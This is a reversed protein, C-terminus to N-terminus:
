KSIPLNAAQWAKFGGEIHAINNYGMGELTRVALASRGGTACYLILRKDKKFQPKHYPLTPDAYFEIMGRPANIAGPIYGQRYEEAERVDILVVDTSALNESAKEPTLNEIGSKAYNVLDMASKGAPTILSQEM